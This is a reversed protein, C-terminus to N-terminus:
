ARGEQYRAPITDPCVTRRYEPISLFADHVAAPDIKDAVTIEHFLALLRTMRWGDGMIHWPGTCSGQSNSYRRDDMGHRLVRVPPEVGKEWFIVADALPVDGAFSTLPRDNYIPMKDNLVGSAAVATRKEIPAQDREMQGLLVRSVGIADAMAEQSMGLAKRAGKLDDAQM